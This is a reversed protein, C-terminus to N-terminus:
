GWYVNRHDMGGTWNRRSEYVQYFDSGLEAAAEAVSVPTWEINNLEDEEDENTHDDGGSNGDEVQETNNTEEGPHVFAEEDAPHNGVRLFPDISRQSEGFQHAFLRMPDALNMQALLKASLMIEGGKANVVEERRFLVTVRHFDLAGPQAEDSVWRYGGWVSSLSYNEVINAAGTVDAYLVVGDSRKLYWNESMHQAVAKVQHRKRYLTELTVRVEEVCPPIVRGIVYTWMGDICLPYDDEWFWGDIHRLTFSVTRPLLCTASAALHSEAPNLGPTSLQPETLSLTPRSETQDQLVWFTELLSTMYRLAVLVEFGPPKTPACAFYFTEEPFGPMM